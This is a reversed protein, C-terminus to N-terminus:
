WKTHKKIELDKNMMLLHTHLKYNWFNKLGNSVIMCNLLM